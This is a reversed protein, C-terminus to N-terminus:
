RLVRELDQLTYPKTLTTHEIGAPVEIRAGYGTAFVIKMAPDLRAADVALAVGSRGPLSVDTLLLRYRGRELERLAEEASAVARVRCGLLELLQLTTERLDPEDEVLLVEAPSAEPAPAPAPQRRGLLQRLKRALDEQRYPKSLLEVDPDLRGGHVIANQTYGSTFLVPIGPLLAKARRALEPSRLPGPMVVDTFLLDVHVGSELISLAAQANGAKLVRYGLAQLMNVVATQVALDDEVVLVTESGGTVPTDARALPQVEKDHSRPLYLKITTGAGLESYLRIHGGSQKAFGYAM